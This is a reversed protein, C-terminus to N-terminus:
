FTDLSIESQQLKAYIYASISIIEEEENLPLDFVPKYLVNKIKLRVNDFIQHCLPQSQDLTKFFFFLSM